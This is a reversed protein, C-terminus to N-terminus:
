EERKRMKLKIDEWHKLGEKPFRLLREHSYKTSQLLAMCDAPVIGFEFDLFSFKIKTEIESDNKHEELWSIGKEVFSIIEQRRKLEKKEKEIQEDVFREDVFLLEECIQEM